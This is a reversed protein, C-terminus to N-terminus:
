NSGSSPQPMYPILANAVRIIPMTQIYVKGPGTIVTNFFSEGGFLANKVGKIAIADITCTEDMAALFGTAVIIQQGAELTYEKVSGTVELFAVGSGSLKSMIFGEGGFLGASLKKQFVTELNIGDTSALYASKQVIIGKSPTIEVARIEGPFSSSFAIMGPGGVATYTNQFLHEGAFLRGFAKGIGGGTDTEMQMNPSMWAMGGSETHMKEGNELNCIVAPLNEGIIEYKM